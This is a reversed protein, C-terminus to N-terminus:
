GSFVQGGEGGTIEDTGPVFQLIRAGEEVGGTIEVNEGDTLGLTVATETPAGADDLLWVKGTAVRGAVATVPALLVGTAQGATVDVTASLGSFVPVDSPVRCTVSAGTPTSGPDVGGGGFAYPDPAPAPAPASTGTVPTGTRLGTCQFTGPGGPVTVSASSPAALLRFQQDQTLPASVTLTGPSITAAAEGITVEQAPLVDLSALTGPVTATVTVTRTRPPAPAPPPAAPDAAPPAPPAEVPVLVTFLPTGKEVADGVEARLRGVAGAATVKVTTAPDAEISGSLSVTNVVDGRTITTEAPTLVASPSAAGAPEPGGRGFALYLLAVAILAWVVLRLSPFVITKFM